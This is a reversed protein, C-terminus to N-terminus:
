QHHINEFINHGSSNIAPEQSSVEVSTVSIQLFVLHRDNIKISHIIYELNSVKTSIKVRISSNKEHSHVGM